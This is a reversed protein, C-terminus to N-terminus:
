AEASIAPNSLFIRPILFGNRRRSVLFGLLAGIIAGAFVQYPYHAHVEIRSWGIVVAIAYWVPGLKPYKETILWALAFAFVTHGSPFGPENPHYPRPFPFVDKRLADTLLFDGLIVDPM